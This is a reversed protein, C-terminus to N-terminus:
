RTASIRLPHVGRDAGDDAARQKVSQFYEAYLAAILAQKIVVNALHIKAADAVDDLASAGNQLGRAALLKMVGSPWCFPASDQAFAADVAEDDDAAVARVM